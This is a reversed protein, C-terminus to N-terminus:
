LLYIRSALVDERAIVLDNLSDICQIYINFYYYRVFLLYM